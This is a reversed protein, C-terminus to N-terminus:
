LVDAYGGTIFKPEDLDLRDRVYVTQNRYGQYLNHEKCRFASDAFAIIFKARACFWGFLRVDPSKLEWVGPETPTMSHSRSYFSMDEGSVFDHLLDYTQELPSMRGEDLIPELQPLDNDFWEIVGPFAYLLRMPQEHPELGGGLQVLMSQDCLEGATAM